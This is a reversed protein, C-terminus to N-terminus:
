SGGEQTGLTGRLAALGRSVHTKVSGPSVGMSTAVEAESLGALFRLGVAERQRRPLRRMAEVLTVRVAVVDEIAMPEPMQVTAARRSARKLAENIAVRLVWADAYPVRRLRSWRAYARALAEAAVDEAEDQNGLIRRGAACARAYVADFLAEFEPDRM